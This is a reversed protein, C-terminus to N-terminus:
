VFTFTSQQDERLCNDIGGLILLPLQRWMSQQDERLHNDISGSGPDVSTIAEANLTSGRQPSQRDVGRVAKLKRIKLIPICKTLIRSLVFTRVAM